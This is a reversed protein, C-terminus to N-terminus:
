RPLSSEKALAGLKGSGSYSKDLGFQGLCLVLAALAPCGVIFYISLGIPKPPSPKAGNWVNRRVLWRAGGISWCM